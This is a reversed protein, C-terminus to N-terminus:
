GNSLMRRPHRRHRTLVADLLDINGFGSPGFVTHHAGLAPNAAEWLGLFQSHPSASYLEELYKKYTADM